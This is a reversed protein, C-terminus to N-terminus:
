KCITIFATPIWWINLGFSVSVIQYGEQNKENLIKEVKAILQKTSWMSSEKVITYQKM